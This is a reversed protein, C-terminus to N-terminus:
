SSINELMKLILELALDQLRMLEALLLSDM